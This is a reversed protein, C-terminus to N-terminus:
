SRFLLHSFPSNNPSNISHFVTSLAMFVSISVLVSFFFHTLDTLKHWVYVTVDGGRSLSGTPVRSRTLRASDIYNATYTLISLQVVYYILKQFCNSFLNKRFINPRFILLDSLLYGVNSIVNLPRLETAAYCVKWGITNERIIVDISSTLTM